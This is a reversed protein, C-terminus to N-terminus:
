LNTVKMISFADPRLTATGFDANLWFRVANRNAATLPDVIFSMEGFQGFVQQQWDGLGINGEGIFHTTFVPLGCLKGDEIVMIGSGADKPTAELAAKTGATMVWAMGSEAYGKGLLKGKEKCLEKYIKAKSADVATPTLGVFPGKVQATANVKETSFLVANIQRVVSIPLTYNIIEEVKRDSNWISERTAEAGVAFRDRVTAVKSLEVKVPDVAVGEGAITCEVAGAVPWEWQGRLGTPIRIGLQNYILGEEVAHLIEQALVPELGGAQLDDTKMLSDAATQTGDGGPQTGGSEGERLKIEVVQGGRIQERLMSAMSPERVPVAPSQAALARMELIVKERALAAAEAREAETAERNERELVDALERLRAGIEQLRRYM